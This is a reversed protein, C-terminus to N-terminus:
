LVYSVCAVSLVCYSVNITCPVSEENDNYSKQNRLDMSETDNRESENQEPEYSELKKLLNDKWISFDKEVGICTCTCWYM